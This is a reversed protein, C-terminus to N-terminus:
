INKRHELVSLAWGALVALILLLCYIKLDVCFLVSQRLRSYLKWHYLAFCFLVVAASQLLWAAKPSLKESIHFHSAAPLLLCWFALLGLHLWSFSLSTSPRYMWYEFLFCPLLLLASRLFASPFSEPRPCTRPRTPLTFLPHNKM